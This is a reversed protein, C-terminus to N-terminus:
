GGDSSRGRPKAVERSRAILDTYLRELRGVAADLDYETRQRERAQKGLTQALGRDEVLRGIAGALADPDQPPVLLGHLGDTILEPVGGVATAVIPAGLAMYEILALPSGERRSPLVAVDLARVIEPVDERRGLMRIEDSVSLDAIMQRLRVEEPGVGAIVCRVSVGRTKLLAIARILTDYGKEEFLRGVAGILSTGPPLELEGLEAAGGERPPPIANPFVRVLEPPLREREILQRRDWESVALVVNSLRGVVNRDLFPRMIKGELLSGHEHSIVVPVGAIRALIAGPVSARPMHAHVLDIRERALLRVLRTWPGVSWSSPRDLCLVKVGADELARTERDAVERRLPEPRRTTCLYSEFRTPDLRSAFEYALAEAGGLTLGADRALSLVRLRPAGSRTAPVAEERAKERRGAQM